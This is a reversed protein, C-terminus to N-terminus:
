SNYFDSLKKMGETKEADVIHVYRMTISINSHGLAEMLHEVRGGERLYNTAFTHRGVHYKSKKRINVTNTIIKL